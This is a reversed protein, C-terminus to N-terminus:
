PKPNLTLPADGADARYADQTAGEAFHVCSAITLRSLRVEKSLQVLCARM